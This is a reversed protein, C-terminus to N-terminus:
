SGCRPPATSGRITLSPELLTLGVNPPSGQEIWTSLMHVITQAIERFPQVITTLPPNTYAAFELGDFGVVSLDEPIHWGSRQLTTMLSLALEDNTCLIATPPDDMNVLQEAILKGIRYGLRGPWYEATTPWKDEIALGHRRMANAYGTAKGPAVASNPMVIKRHGLAVLHDVAAETGKARDTSCGVLPRQHQRLRVLQEEAPNVIVVPLRAGLTCCVRDVAVSAGLAVVGVAGVLQVFGAAKEVPVANCPIVVPELTPSAALADMLDGSLLRFAYSQTDAPASIVAITDTPVEMVRQRRRRPAYSLLEAAARVRDVAEPSYLGHQGNLIRSVASISISAKAAVDKLNPRKKETKMM